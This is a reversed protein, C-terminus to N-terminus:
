FNNFNNNSRYFSEKQYQKENEISKLYLGYNQAQEIIIKHKNENIEQM